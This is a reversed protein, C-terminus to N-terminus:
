ILEKMVKAAKTVETKDRCSKKKERVKRPQTIIKYLYKINNKGPEL